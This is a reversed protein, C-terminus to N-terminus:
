SRAISRTSSSFANEAAENRPNIPCWVCGARSIGFVCAFAFPITARCCRSRTARRSAPPPPARAFRYNFDSRRPTPSLLDDTTLCPKEPGLSAGKDLYDTLLM